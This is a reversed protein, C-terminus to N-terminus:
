GFAWWIYWRLLIGVNHCVSQNVPHPKTPAQEAVCRAIDNDLAAAMGETESTSDSESGSGGSGFSVYSGESDERQLCLPLPPLPQTLYIEISHRHVFGNIIRM